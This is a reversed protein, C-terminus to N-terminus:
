LIKPYVSTYIALSETVGGSVVDIEASEFTLLAEGGGSISSEIAPERGIMLIGNAGDIGDSGRASSNAGLGGSGGSAYWTKNDTLLDSYILTLNGGNGGGGGGGGGPYVYHFPPAHYLWKV